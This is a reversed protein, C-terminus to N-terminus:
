DYINQKTEIIELSHIMHNKLIKQNKLLKLVQKTSFNSYHQKYKKSIRTLFFTHFYTYHQKFVSFMNSFHEVLRARLIQFKMRSFLLIWAFM